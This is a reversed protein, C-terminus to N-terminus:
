AERQALWKRLWGGPFLMLLAGLAPFILAKGGYLMLMGADLLCYGKVGSLVLARAADPTGTKSLAHLRVILQIALVVLIAIGIWNLDGFIPSRAHVHILGAVGVGLGLFVSGLAISRNNKGGEEQASFATVSAGYFGSALALLWPLGPQTTQMGSYTGPINYVASMSLVINAARCVGLTLPGALTKGKALFDYAAVAVALVGACILSTRGVLAALVAGGLMLCIGVSLATSPSVAGSPIPRQPRVRADEERDAYDNLAMGSLYLAASAGCLLAFAGWQPPSGYTAIFYGAIIDALATFVNPLRILRLIPIM